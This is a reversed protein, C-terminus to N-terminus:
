CIQKIDTVATELQQRAAEVANTDLLDGAAAATAQSLLTDIATKAQDVDSGLQGSTATQAVGLASSVAQLDQKAAQPDAGISDAANSAAQSAQDATQRATECAADNAAQKATDEVADCGTLATAATTATLAAAALVSRRM